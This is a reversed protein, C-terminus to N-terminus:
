VKFVLTVGEIAEIWEPKRSTWFEVDPKRKIGNGDITGAQVLYFSKFIDAESEKILVTACDPCFHYDVEIGSEQIFRNSKPSGSTWKFNERPLLFQLHLRDRHAKPM